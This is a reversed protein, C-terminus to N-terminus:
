STSSSTPAITTSLDWFMNFLHVSPCNLTWIDVGVQVFPKDPKSQLTRSRAAVSAKHKACSDCFMSDSASPLKLGTLEGTRQVGLIGLGKM